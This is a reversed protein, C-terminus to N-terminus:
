YFVFTGNCFDFFFLFIDNNNFSFINLNDNTLNTNPSIM